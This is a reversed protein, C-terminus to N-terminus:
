KHDPDEHEIIERMDADFLSGPHSVEKSRVFQEHAVWLYLALLVKRVVKSLWIIRKMSEIEEESYPFSLLQLPYTADAKPVEM